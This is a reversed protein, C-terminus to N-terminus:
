YSSFAKEWSVSSHPRLLFVNVTAPTNASLSKVLIDAEPMGLLSSCMKWRRDPSVGMLIWSFDSTLYHFICFHHCNGFLPSFMLSNPPSLYLSPLFYSLTVVSIPKINYICYRYLIISLAIPFLHFYPNEVLSQLLISYSSFKDKKFSIRTREEGEWIEKNGLWVCNDMNDQLVKITVPTFSFSVISIKWSKGFMRKLIWLSHRLLLM